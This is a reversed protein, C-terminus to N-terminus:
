AAGVWRAITSASVGIEQGIKAAAHGKGWERVAWDRVSGADRLGNGRRAIAAKIGNRERLTTGAWIGELASQHNIVYELCNVRVQCGECIAKAHNAAARDSPEPFFVDGGIDKCAADDRWDNRTERQNPAHQDHRVPTFRRTQM